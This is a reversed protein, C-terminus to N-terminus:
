KITKNINTIVKKISGVLNDKAIDHAELKLNVDELTTEYKGDIANLESRKNELQTKLNKIQNELSSVEGNLALQEQEKEGLLNNKKEEGKSKMNNYAEEIKELYNNADSLVSEKTFEPNMTQHMNFAMQYLETKDINGTTTINLYFEYFDIGAKNMQAFGNDYIQIVGEIHPNNLSKTKAISQVPTVPADPTEFDNSKKEDNFVDDFSPTSPSSNQSPTEEPFGTKPFGSTETKKTTQTAGSSADPDVALGLKQFISKERKPQEM